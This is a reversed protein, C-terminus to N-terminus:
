ATAGREELWSLRKGPPREEDIIALFLHKALAETFEVGVAWGPLDPHPRSWIVRGTLVLSGRVQPAISAFRGGPIGQGFPGRDGQSAQEVPMEREGAAATM